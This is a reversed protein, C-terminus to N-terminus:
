NNLWSELIFVASLSHINIKPYLSFYIKYKEKLNLRSIFSTFREDYFFIKINFKNKLEISFKIINKCLFCYKKKKVFFPYGIVVKNILWINIIKKIDNWNVPIGKKANLCILPNATKTLKQGIAIGIKKMGFDFSLIFM